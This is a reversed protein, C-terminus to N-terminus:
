RDVRGIDYINALIGVNQESGEVLILITHTYKEIIDNLHLFFCTKGDLVM